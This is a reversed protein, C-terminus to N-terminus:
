NRRPPPAVPKATLEVTLEKTTVTGVWFSEAGVKSFKKLEDVAAQTDEYTISVTYKGPKLGDFYWFGGAEESGTLRFGQDTPRLRGTRGITASEEKAILLPPPITSAKRAAYISLEKGAADKIRITVTDLLNFELTKDAHNTIKLSLPVFAGEDLVWVAPTIVQFDVGSVRVPQSETPSKLVTQVGTAPAPTAAEGAVALGALALVNLVVIKCSTNM